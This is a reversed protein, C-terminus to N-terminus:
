VLWSVAAAIPWALDSPLGLVQMILFVQAAQYKKYLLQQIKTKEDPHRYNWKPSSQACSAHAWEREWFQIGLIDDHASYLTSVVSSGVPLSKGCLYCINYGDIKTMVRPASGKANAGVKPVYRVICELLARREKDDM